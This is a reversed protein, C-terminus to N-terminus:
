LMRVILVVAVITVLPAAASPVGCAAVLAVLWGAFSTLPGSLLAGIAMSVIVVLSLPIRM